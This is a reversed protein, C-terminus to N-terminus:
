VCTSLLPGNPMTLGRSSTAVNEVSGGDTDLGFWTRGPFLDGSGHLRDGPGPRWEARAIGRAGAVFGTEARRSGGFYVAHEHVAFPDLSSSNDRSFDFNPRCDSGWLCRTTCDTLSCRTAEPAMEDELRAGSLRQRGHKSASLRQRGHEALVWRAVTLKTALVWLRQRGRMCPRQTSRRAQADLRAGLPAAARAQRPGLASDGTSPSCGSHERAEHRAGLPRQRGHELPSNM